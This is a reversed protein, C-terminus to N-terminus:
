ANGLLMERADDHLVAAVADVVGIRHETGLGRDLLYESRPHDALRQVQEHHARGVLAGGRHQEPAGVEHAGLGGYPHAGGDEARM